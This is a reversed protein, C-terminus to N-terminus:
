PSSHEQFSCTPIHLIRPYRDKGRLELPTVLVVPCLHCLAEWFGEEVWSSESEVCGVSFLHQELDDPLKEVLLSWSSGHRVGLTGTGARVM